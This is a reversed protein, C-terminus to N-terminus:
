LVKHTVLSLVIEQVSRALGVYLDNFYEDENASETSFELQMRPADEM